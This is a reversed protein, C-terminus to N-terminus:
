KATCCFNPPPFYMAFDSAPRNEYAILDKPPSRLCYRLIINFPCAMCGCVVVAVTRTKNRLKHNNKNVLSM